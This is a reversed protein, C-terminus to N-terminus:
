GEMKDIREIECLVANLVANLQARIERSEPIEQLQKM